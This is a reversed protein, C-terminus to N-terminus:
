LQLSTYGFLHLSRNREYKKDVGEEILASLFAADPITFFQSHLPLAELLLAMLLYGTQKM